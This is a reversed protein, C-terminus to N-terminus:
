GIIGVTSAELGVAPSRMDKSSGSFLVPSRLGEARGFDDSLSSDGGGDFSAAKVVDKNAGGASGVVFGALKVNRGM